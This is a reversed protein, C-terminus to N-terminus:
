VQSSEVKAAVTSADVERIPSTSPKAALAERVESALSAQSNLLETTTRELQQVTNQLADAWQPPAEKTYNAIYEALLKSTNRVHTENSHDAVLYVKDTGNGAGHRSDRGEAARGRALRYLLHGLAFTAEVVHFALTVLTFPPPAPHRELWELIIKARLYTFNVANEEQIREFTKAQHDCTSFSLDKGRAGSAM